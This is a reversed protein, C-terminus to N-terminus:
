CRCRSCMKIMEKAINIDGNHNLGIEAIIFAPENIGVFRDNIKLKQKKM